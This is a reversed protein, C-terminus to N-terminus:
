FMMFFYCFRAIIIALITTKRLFPISSGAERGELASTSSLHTITNTKRHNHNTSHLKIEQWYGIGAISIFETSSDNTPLTNSKLPDSTIEEFWPFWTYLAVNFNSDNKISNNTKLLREKKAAEQLNKTNEFYKASEYAENIRPLEVALSITLMLFYVIYQCIHKM